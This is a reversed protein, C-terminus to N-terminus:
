KHMKNNSTKAVVELMKSNNIIRNNLVQEKNLLVLLQLVKPQQIKNSKHEKNHRDRLWRKNVKFLQGIFVMVLQSEVAVSYQSHIYGHIQVSYRNGIKGVVLM